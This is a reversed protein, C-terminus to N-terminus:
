GNEVGKCIKELSNGGYANNVEKLEKRANWAAEAAAEYKKRAAALSPQMREGSKMISAGCLDCWIKVGYLTITSNIIECGCFPCQKRM